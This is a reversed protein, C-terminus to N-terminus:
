NELPLVRFRQFGAEGGFAQITQSYSARPMAFIFM